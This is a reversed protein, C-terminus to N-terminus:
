ASVRSLERDKQLKWLRFYAGKLQLLESHTGREAIVGKDLVIIEDMKEMGTLQHTIWLVAKHKLREQVGEQFAQETLPDLGTAPEDFLLAPADMLLARALAIRQREGGSLREGWEGIMSDYGDPLEMITDHINAMRAAAHLEETTAGQKGLKLNDAVSMNFLQVHQSVVAFQARLSQETWDEVPRGDIVITGEDLPRLKLLLQLLTSKGSGSEGVIAIQRGQALSLSVDRLAYPANMGYSYSLNAAHLRWPMRGVRETRESDRQQDNERSETAEEGARGAKAASEWEEAMRFLREGASVTQGYHQFSQPLPMIAEFCALTMMVLAPLAYGPITGSSVLPIALVLVLWMALHSAWVMFGGTFASIMYHRQQQAGLQGQIREVRNLADNTRGYLSLAPMGSMIDSLETYMEARSKVLGRGNERGFRHSIWPVLAGALLLMGALVVGLLMDHSGLVIFGLIVTLAAVIPPAIVRLYLNQLQDVDSIISGLLDGSRRQELLVAGRPELREYLWVRIRHLVRFTLDHSVLRELYRLVGRSLGFFRVGVIPIYLLLITEPRLAAKAILYGSTGMLGVNAGIVAFGLVIALLTRWKYPRLFQLLRLLANGSSASHHRQGDAENAHENKQIAMLAIGSDRPSSSLKASGTSASSVQESALRREADSLTEQAGQHLSGDAIMEGERRYASLMRAYLGGTQMLERPAGAEALKGDALVIIRDADRVTELRHAVTISMREKMMLEMGSKLAEESAIDLGSTPEDMLLLRSDRLLARAMAIRQAQGGSLQVSETLVTHYGNPLQQIFADACAARAAAMIEKEGAEPCSLAINDMVTGRFLHVKQPVVALEGRWWQLSLSSLEVGNMLIRGESPKIFGQLLDLITSKGSGTAGVIAIREGPELTMTLNSLAPRDMGPYTVTVNQFEIRYGSGGKDLRLGDDKEVLGPPETDLIAFIRKAAAMGNRGAHFQTGLARVPAYFEPTLLLVLFAHQFGIDGEVLRVGLFVAVMATSLTAFLEMVFASLFALRLTGMTSRRHEESIRSIIDIQERSRNFIKLTPLGRLVEHFHGGLRGLLKFQRDTKAQAAIGILIMFVILLPLTIAYVIATITDLGAAVCFVAAPILMSMAVQPVYKALYTELQEVGEYVTSILEGSRESKSYQPGLETLKRALQLRLESKIGGAMRDAMYEAIGHVVARAAILALLMYLAPMIVQLGFGNLFADNVADALYIAETIMIAGGIVGFLISAAFLKRTGKSQRILKKMM